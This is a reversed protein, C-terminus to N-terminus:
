PNHSFKLHPPPPDEEGWGEKDSASVDGGAQWLSQAHLPTQGLEPTGGPPHRGRGEEGGAQQQQQQQPPAGPRGGREDADGRAV